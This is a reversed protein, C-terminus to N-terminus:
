PSVEWVSLDYFNVTLAEDSASRAFVGIVGVPIQGDNVAFQFNGNIFFRMEAGVAWVGLRSTSPGGPPVDGSLLWPQPSSAQGHLIRDLRVQGDCSLSFRYYDNSSQARILMGYEDLGRCLGPSATIEAYFDTFQPEFRLSIHYVRKKSIVITLEAKGLRASAGDKESLAWSEGTSFDDQLLPEGIGPRQEPTPPLVTATPMPTFTATPPFWVPTTTLTATPLAPTPTETPLLTAVPLCASALLMWALLGCAAAMRHFLLRLSVLKDWTTKPPDKTAM